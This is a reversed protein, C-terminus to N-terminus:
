IAVNEGVVLKAVVHMCYPMVGFKGAYMSVQCAAAQQLTAIAPQMVDCSAVYSYDYVCYM